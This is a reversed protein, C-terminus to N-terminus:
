VGISVSLDSSGFFNSISRLCVSLKIKKYYFTKMRKKKEIFDRRGKKRELFYEEGRQGPRPLGIFKSGGAGLFLCNQIM